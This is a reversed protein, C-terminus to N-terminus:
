AIFLIHEYVALRGARAGKGVANAFWLRRQIRGGPRPCASKNKHHSERDSSLAFEAFSNILMMGGMSGIGFVAIYLGGVRASQITSLVFLM